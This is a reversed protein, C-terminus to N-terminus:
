YNVYGYYYYGSSSSDYTYWGAHGRGDTDGYGWYEGRDTYVYGQSDCEVIRSFDSGGDLPEFDGSFGLRCSGCDVTTGAISWTGIRSGDPFSVSTAGSVAAGASTTGDGGDGGDRGDTGDWRGSDSSSSGGDGGDGFDDVDKVDSGFCAVAFFLPILHLPNHM